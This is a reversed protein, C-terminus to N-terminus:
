EKKELRELKREFEERERNAKLKGKDDKVLWYKPYAKKHTEGSMLSRLVGIERASLNISDLNYDEFAAYSVPAIARITKAMVKTPERIELQAHSDSRLELFRFANHLDGKFFYTVFRNVPLHRNAISHSVGARRLANYVKVAAAENRKLSALFRKATTVDAKNGRGQHNSDSQLAIDELKPHYFRIPANETADFIVREFTRHRGGQRYVFIPVDIKWLGEVMEFPTTHRHRMLYRILGNNEAESRPKENGGTSVRAANLVSQDSGMYDVLTVSGDGLIPIPKDLLLEAEQSTIHELRVESKEDSDRIVGWDPIGNRELYSRVAMPSVRATMGLLTRIYQLTEKSVNDKDNNISAAFNLLDYLNIKWYFKTYLNAGLPSRALERAIGNCRAREYRAFAQASFDEGMESLKLLEPSVNVNLAKTLDRATLKHASDKAESYRLSYENVSATPEYVFRLAEAIPMEFHFALETMGFINRNDRAILQGIARINDSSVNPGYYRRSADLIRSDGGMYDILRVYGKDLVRFKDGLIEDAKKTRIHAM